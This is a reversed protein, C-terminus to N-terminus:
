KETLATAEIRLDRPVWAPVVVSTLRATLSANVADEIRPIILRKVQGILPISLVPTELSTVELTAVPHHGGPVADFRVHMWAAAHDVTISHNMGMARWLVTGVVAVAFRRTDPAADAADDDTIRLQTLVCQKIPNDPLLSLRHAIYRNVDACPLHITLLPASGTWTTMAQWPRSGPGLEALEFDGAAAISGRLLLPPIGYGSLDTVLKRARGAPIHLSVQTRDDDALPTAAITALTFAGDKGRWTMPLSRGLWWAALWPVLTWCVLFALILLIFFCGCGRPRRAM